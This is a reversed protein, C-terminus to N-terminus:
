SCLWWINGGAMAFVKADMHRVTLGTAGAVHLQTSYIIHRVDCRKCAEAIAIGQQIQHYTACMNPGRPLM